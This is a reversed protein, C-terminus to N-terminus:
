ASWHGRAGFPPNPGHGRWRGAGGRVGGVVRPGAPDRRGVAVGGVGALHGRGAAVDAVGGLVRLALDVVELRGLDGGGVEALRVGFPM